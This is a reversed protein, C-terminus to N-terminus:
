LLFLREANLTTVAAVEAMTVQKIEAVTRATEVLFAPENSYRRYPEPTLDPADTELLLNALLISKVVALPKVANTYTVTGAISIFLGLKICALATEPSGSFAHMVGGVRQVNEERLVCLLDQFAKRCHIILPLGFKVALKLQSRFAAIQAERPVDALTYDLGVEGIAVAAHSYGELRTLLDDNCLGALMPHLGFAPYVGNLSRGLTAIREWGDPGIGPIIFRNVGAKKGSDIVEPLRVSLAPDDLHCHTDVFM